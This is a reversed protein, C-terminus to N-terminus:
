GARAKMRLDDYVRTDAQLKGGTMVQLKYAVGEPVIEGWQAVCQYTVNLADATKRVTGFHAIVDSKRM